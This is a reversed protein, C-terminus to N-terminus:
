FIVTKPDYEVHIHSVEPVVDFKKGLYERLKVVVEGGDKSPLRIDIAENSYHLSSAMHDGEYTSTVVAEQGSM